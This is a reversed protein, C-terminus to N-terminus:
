LHRMRDFLSRLGADPEVGLENRLPREYGRYARLAEVIRGSCFLAEMAIALGKAWLGDIQLGRMAVASAQAHHGEERLRIACRELLRLAKKSVRERPVMTYDEYRDEPLLEGRYLDLTADLRDDFASSLSPATELERELEDIARELTHL